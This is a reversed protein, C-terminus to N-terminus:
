HDGEPDTQEDATLLEEDARPILHLSPRARDARVGGADYRLMHEVYGIGELLEICSLSTISYISSGTRAM